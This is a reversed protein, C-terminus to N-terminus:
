VFCFETFLLVKVDGYCSFISPLSRLLWQKLKLIYMPIHLPLWNIKEPLKCAKKFFSSSHALLLLLWSCNRRLCTCNNLCELISYVSTEFPWLLFFLCLFSAYLKSSKMSVMLPLAASHQFMSYLTLMFQLCNQFMTHFKESCM